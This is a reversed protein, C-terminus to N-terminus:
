GIKIWNKREIGGSLTFFFIYLQHNKRGGTVNSQTCSKSGFSSQFSLVKM